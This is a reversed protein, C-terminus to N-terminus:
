VCSRLSVCLWCLVSTLVSSVDITDVNITVGSPGNLVAPLSSSLIANDDDVVPLPIQVQLFLIYLLLM